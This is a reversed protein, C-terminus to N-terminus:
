TFVCQIFYTRIGFLFKAHKAQFIRETIVPKMLSFILDRARVPVFINRYMRMEVNSFENLNQFINSTKLSLFWCYFEYVKYLNTLKEFPSKGGTKLCMYKLLRIEHNNLSFLEKKVDYKLM